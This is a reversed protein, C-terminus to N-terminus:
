SLLCKEVTFAIEMAQAQQWFPNPWEGGHIITHAFAYLEEKQGKEPLKSKIDKLKAGKIILRRYNDLVLVKGDVFIELQEKPYDSTGFTTFTLTAVSGDTFTIIVAFNDHFNYYSNCGSARRADVTQVKSGTLYTFLDYIHCAEGINRGGGEATYIWNNLPIYGANIRYNLIMPNDRTRIIEQIYKAYRSFRRNFGTLLIPTTNIGSDYFDRIADLETQNLALPKEVLVHKGAKLAELALKAHLNHRTTILVADVEPDQLVEQTDTTAYKAGFQKATALANHGSRSVVAQLYYHDSLHRLSPLHVGKAFDGAGILALRIRGSGTARVQSHTIVRKPAREVEHNPYSLLVMLPKDVDEKLSRYADAAETVPYVKSILPEIRLKGEAALTLYEALNRNETWRVYAVPYDLGEEEYGPDYRGPGYSTSILLDLEKLYFDARNLNLGVDGVLVVRGKKRCMKFATSIVASSSTAATIIVGDAGIGDTLRAVQELESGTDESIVLDMGLRQALKVRQQNLDAGIVRCGNIHLLQATLQGIIGLGIVIFTEGLTPQARRIGQLAIAGLTVTSAIKLDLDAPVPVTLNRPVCIIEAHHAWQSGACAVRDGPKLDTVGEGVELVDGSASYGTSNGKNLKNQVFGRTYAFGRASVLNFVKRINAPQKLVRKWLPAASTKLGSLETGSSICSHDVRVLISGKQVRPGPIEEVVVAGNKFLVLKM